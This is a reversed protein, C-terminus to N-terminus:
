PPDERSSRSRPVRKAQGFRPRLGIPGLPGAAIVELFMSLNSPNHSFAVMRLLAGVTMGQEFRRM